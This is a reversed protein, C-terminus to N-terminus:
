RRAPTSARTGDPSRIASRAKSSRLACWRPPSRTRRQRLGVARRPEQQLQLHQAMGLAARAGPRDGEPAGRGMAQALARGGSRPRRRRRERCQDRATRRGSAGPRPIGSRRARRRRARRSNRAAAHLQAPRQPVLRDPHRGRLSPRRRNGAAYCTSVHILAAGRKRCFEIVNAVGITNVSLSKELSAEFNVLGACHVVADIAGRARRKARPSWTTRPSTAASCPSSKRSTATSAIASISACASRVGALRSNRPALPQASLRRDGRILLYIREIEPHWRLLLSLFVKGLFGTAGTLLIRRHRLMQELPAMATRAASGNTGNSNSM